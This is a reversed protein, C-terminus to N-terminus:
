AWFVPWGCWALAAGRGTDDQMLAEVGSGDGRLLLSKPHGASTFLTRGDTADITMYFATTFIMEPMQKLTRSLSHNMETLLAGPDTVKSALEMILAHVVATVLSSRVGHGMVDCIFLGARTESLPM